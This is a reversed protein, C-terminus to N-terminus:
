KNLGEQFLFASAPLVGVKQNGTSDTVLIFTLINIYISDIYTRLM